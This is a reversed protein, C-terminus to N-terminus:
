LAGLHRGGRAVPAKGQRMTVPDLLTPTIVVANTDAGTIGRRGLLAPQALRVSGSGNKSAAAATM